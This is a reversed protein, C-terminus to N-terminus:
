EWIKVNKYMLPNQEQKLKWEQKLKEAKSKSIHIRLATGKAILSVQWDPTDQIFESEGEPKYSLKGDEDYEPVFTNTDYNFQGKAVLYSVIQKHRRHNDHVQLYLHKLTDNNFDAIILDSISQITQDIQRYLIRNYENARKLNAMVAKTTAESFKTTYLESSNSM